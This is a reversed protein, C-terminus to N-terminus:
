RRTDATRAPPAATTGPTDDPYNGNGYEYFYDGLHLCRTSTPASPSAAFPTSTASATTPAPVSASAFSARRTARPPSGAHPRDPELARARCVPLLLEPGLDLRARRGERHLRALCRDHVHGAGHARPLRRRPGNGVLGRRAGFSRGHRPDLSHRGRALSRRQRRRARLSEGPRDPGDWQYEPLEPLEPLM